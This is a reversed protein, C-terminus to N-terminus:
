DALATRVRFVRRGFVGYLIQGWSGTNARPTGVGLYQIRYGFRLMCSGGAAYRQSHQDWGYRKDLQTKCFVWAQEHTLKKGVAGKTAAIGANSIALSMAFVLPFVVRSPKFPLM